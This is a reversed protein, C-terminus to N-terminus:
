DDDSLKPETADDYSKMPLAGPPLEANVRARIDEWCRRCFAADKPCVRLCLMCRARRKIM